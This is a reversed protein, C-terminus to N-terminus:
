LIVSLVGGPGLGGSWLKGTESELMINRPALDHHTFVLEKRPAMPQLCSEKHQEPTKSIERRFSVLNHWFNVISCITTPSAYPPIEYVDNDIWFSRCIGTGLSGVAPRTATQM